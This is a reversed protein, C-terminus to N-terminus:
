VKCHNPIHELSLTSSQVLYRNGHLYSRGVPHSDVPYRLYFRYSRADFETRFRRHRTDLRCLYGLLSLGFLPTAGYLGTRIARSRSRPQLGRAFRTWILIFAVVYLLLLVYGPFPVFVRPNGTYSQLWVSLVLTAALVGFFTIACIFALALNCIGLVLGNERFVSTLQIWAPLQM